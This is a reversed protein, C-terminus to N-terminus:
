LMGSQDFRALVRSVVRSLFTVLEDGHDTRFADRDQSALVLLGLRRQPGIEIRALAESRLLHADEGYLWTRPADCPGMLVPAQLPVMREIVGGTRDLAQDTACSESIVFTCVDAMLAFAVHGGMRDFLDDPDRADLIALIAEQVRIQSEYNARATEVIQDFRARAGRAERAMRERALDGIHVVNGSQPETAIAALLDADDRIFDPNAMLFDRVLDLDLDPSRQPVYAADIFAMATKDKKRPGVM